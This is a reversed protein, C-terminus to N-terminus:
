CSREQLAALIEGLWDADCQTPVIIRCGDPLVVECGARAVAPPASIEIPVFKAATTESSEDSRQQEHEALKRRWNYFSATSVGRQRCFASISLGSAKQDRIVESWYRRREDSRRRAM